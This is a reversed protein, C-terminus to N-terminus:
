RLHTNPMITELSVVEDLNEYEIFANAHVDCAHNLLSPGGGFYENELTSWRASQKVAVRDRSGIWARVSPGCDITAGDAILRKAVIGLQEKDCFYPKVDNSQLFLVWKWLQRMALLMDPGNVLLSLCMIHPIPSKPTMQPMTLQSTIWTGESAHIVDIASKLWEKVDIFWEDLSGISLLWSNGRRELVRVFRHQNYKLTAPLIIMDIIWLDIHQVITHDCISPCM